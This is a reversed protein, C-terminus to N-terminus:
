EILNALVIEKVKKGDVKEQTQSFAVINWRYVSCNERVKNRDCLM